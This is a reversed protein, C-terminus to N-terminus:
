DDDMMPSLTKYLWNGKEDIIGVYNGRYILYKGKEIYSLNGPESFLEKGNKDYVTSATNKYTNTLIFGDEFQTLNSYNQAYQNGQDDYKTEKNMAVIDFDINQEMNYVHIKKDSTITLIGNDLSVDGEQINNLVKETKAKIDYIYLSGADFLYLFAAKKEYDDINKNYAKGEVNVIKNGNLDMAYSDVNQTYSNIFILGSGLYNEYQDKSFTFDKKDNATIITYVGDKTYTIGDEDKEYRDVSFDLLKNCDYDYVWTKNEAVSDTYYDDFASLQTGTIVKKTNNKIDYVTITKDFSIAIIKDDTVLRFYSEGTKLSQSFDITSIKDGNKNLIYTLKSGQAIFKDDSQYLYDYWSSVIGKGLKYLAYEGTKVSSVCILDDKHYLNQGYSAYFNFESNNIEKYDETLWGGQSTDDNEQYGYFYLYYYKNSTTAVSNDVVKSAPPTVRCGSFCISLVVLFAILIKKM